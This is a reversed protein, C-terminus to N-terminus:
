GIKNSKSSNGNESRASDVGNESSTPVEVIPVLTSSNKPSYARSGGGPSPSRTYSQPSPSRSGSFTSQSKEDASNFDDDYFDDSSM